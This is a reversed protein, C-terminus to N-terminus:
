EDLWGCITQFNERTTKVKNYFTHSEISLFGSYGIERLAALQDPWDVKGKGLVAWQSQEGPETHMRVCDKLHVYGILDKVQEFEQRSPVTGGYYINGPDWNVRLAPSGVSRVLSAMTSGDDGYHGVLPELHFTIGEREAEKAALSLKEVVWEEPISEDRKFSFVIMNTVGFDHCFRICQPLKERLERKARDETPECGIFLGPSIAVLQGGYLDLNKKLYERESGTFYPVRTDNSFVQRLEYQRIGWDRGLEFATEPDLSAECTIMVIRDRNM